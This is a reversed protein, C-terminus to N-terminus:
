KLFTSSPTFPSKIRKVQSRLTKSNALLRTYEGCKCFPVPDDVKQTVRQRAKCVTCEYILDPMSETETSTRDLYLFLLAFGARKTRRKVNCLAYVVLSSHVIFGRLFFM